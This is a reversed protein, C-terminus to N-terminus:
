RNETITFATNIPIAETVIQQRGSPWRVDIGDIRAANDVMESVTLLGVDPMGLRTISTGFGTMYVADFGELAVLRAALADAVGPAVVCRPEKFLARLRTAPHM